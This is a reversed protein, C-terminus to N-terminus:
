YFYSIDDKSLCVKKLNNTNPFTKFIWSQYGNIKTRELWWDEGVIMLSDNIVPYSTGEYYEFNAAKEFDDWTSYVLRTGIWKVDDKTKNNKKLIEITEDLLNEM